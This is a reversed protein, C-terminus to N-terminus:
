TKLCLPSSSIHPGSCMQVQRSGTCLLFLVQLHPWPGAPAPPTGGSCGHYAFPPQSLSYLVSLLLLQSGTSQSFQPDPTLSTGPPAWNQSSYSPPPLSLVGGGVSATRRSMWHQPGGSPVSHVAWGTSHGGLASQGEPEDGVERSLVQGGLWAWTSFPHPSPSSEWEPAWYPELVEVTVLGEM